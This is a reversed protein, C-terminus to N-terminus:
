KSAPSKWSMRSLFTPCCMSRPAARNKIPFSFYVFILSGPSKGRVYSRIYIHALYNLEFSHYGAVSHGAKQSYIGEVVPQGEANVRFFIGRHDHDLFFKNWFAAMERALKLYETDGATAGHLILYALIGQEQQWFDKTNGWTFEIPMGGAPKREVADFCGGRIQDLGHDVMAKGLRKALDLFKKADREYQQARDKEGERVERAARFRCYNHVRTLNWAIKLNHGVIARNQQWGWKQDPDWNAQFRENVYPIEPNKDPFKEVILNATTELIHLCTHLLREMKDRGPGGCPPDLALILNVLYAPIHDGISNWNKRSQNQDLAPTDARMTTYDIHSFYGGLGEYGNDTADLYFTQFAKVTRAIDELVEWDQTIRYYQAM